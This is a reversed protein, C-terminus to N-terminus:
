CGSIVTLVFRTGCSLLKLPVSSPRHRPPSAGWRLGLSRLRLLRYLQWCGTHSPDRSTSSCVGYVCTSRNFALPRLPLSSPFTSLFIPLLSAQCSLSTIITRGLPTTPHPLRPSALCGLTSNLGIQPVPVFRDSPVASASENSLCQLPLAAFFLWKQLGVLWLRWQFPGHSSPPPLRPVDPPEAEIQVMLLQSHM